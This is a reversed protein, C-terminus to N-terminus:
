YWEQGSEMQKEKWSTKEADMYYMWLNTNLCGSCPLFGTKGALDSKWIVSLRDTAIWAKTQHINADSETSSVSNGLYTFNDM